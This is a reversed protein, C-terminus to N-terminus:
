SSGFSRFSIFFNFGYSGLIKIGKMRIMMADVEMQMFTASFAEFKSSFIGHIIVGDLTRRVLTQNALRDM